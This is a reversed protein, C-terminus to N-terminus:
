AMKNETVFYHGIAFTISWKVEEKAISEKAMGQPFM